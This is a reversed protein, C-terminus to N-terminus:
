ASFTFNDRCCMHYKITDMHYQMHLRYYVVPIQYCIICVGLVRQLSPIRHNRVGTKNQAPHANLRQVRPNLSHLPWAAEAPPNSKRKAPVACGLLNPFKHHQVGLHEAGM